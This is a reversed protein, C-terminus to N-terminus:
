NLKNKIENFFIATQKQATSSRKASLFSKLLMWFREVEYQQM